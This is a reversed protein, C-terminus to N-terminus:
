EIGDFCESYIMPLHDSIGSLLVQTVQEMESDTLNRNLFVNAQAQIDEATISFITDSM